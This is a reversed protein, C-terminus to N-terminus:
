LHFQQHILSNKVAPLTHLNKLNRTNASNLEHAQTQLIFNYILLIHKMVTLGHYNTIGALISKFYHSAINDIYSKTQEAFQTIHLNNSTKQLFGAAIQSKLKKLNDRVKQGTPPLEV